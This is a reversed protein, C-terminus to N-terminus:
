STETVFSNRLIFSLVKGTKLGFLVLTAVHSKKGRAVPTEGAKSWLPPPEPAGGFGRLSPAFGPAAPVTDPRLRVPPPLHVMLM